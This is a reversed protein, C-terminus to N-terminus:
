WRLKEHVIEASVEVGAAYMALYVAYFAAKKYEQVPDDKGNRDYYKRIQLEVAAIFENRHNRYRPIESMADIWQLNAIFNKYHSPDVFAAIEAPTEGSTKKRSPAPPKVINKDKWASVREASHRWSAFEDSNLFAQNQDLDTPHILEALPDDYQDMVTEDFTNLLTELVLMGDNYLKVKYERM